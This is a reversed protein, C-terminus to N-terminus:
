AGNLPVVAQYRSNSFAVILELDENQLREEQVFKSAQEPEKFDRAFDM